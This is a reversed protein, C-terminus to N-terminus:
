QTAKLSTSKHNTIPQSFYKIFSPLLNAGAQRAYRALLPEHCACSARTLSACVASLRRM